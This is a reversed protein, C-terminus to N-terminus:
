IGINNLKKDRVKDVRNLENPIKPCENYKWLESGDYEDRDSWTGNTYWIIGYLEQSGFGNDYEFDLSKIFDNWDEKTWGTTLSFQSVKSNHRSSEYKITACLIYDFGNPSGDTHTLFEDKANM